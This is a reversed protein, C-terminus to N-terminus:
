KAGPPLPYLKLILRELWGVFFRSTESTELNPIRFQEWPTSQLVM